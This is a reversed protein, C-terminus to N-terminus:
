PLRKAMRRALPLALAYPLCRYLKVMWCFVRPFVIEFRTSDLGRALAATADAVPMLMPMPFRNKETLPTKIFGPNVVQILVGDRELEPRLAEALNIAAAKSAGYAAATPLGRYGAVSAVIAVQGQGRARMRPLLAELAYALANVNLRLVADVTEASFDSAPTPIHTGANLVARAIPGVESHLRELTATVAGADTVDLPYAVIRGPGDGAERALADLAEARRASVAVTWGQGALHLALARGIGSSAGTIWACGDAPRAPALM